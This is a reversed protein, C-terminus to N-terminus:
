HWTAAAPTPSRRVREPAPDTTPDQHPATRALLSPAPRRSSTAGSFDPRLVPQDDYTELDNVSLLVVLTKSWPPAAQFGGVVRARAALGLFGRDVVKTLGSLVVVPTGRPPGAWPRPRGGFGGCTKAVLAAVHSPKGRKQGLQRQLVLQPALRPQYPSLAGEAHGKEWWPHHTSCCARRPSSPIPRRRPVATARGVVITM